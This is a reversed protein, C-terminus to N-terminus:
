IINFYGYPYTFYNPRPIRKESIHNSFKFQQDKISTGQRRFQPVTIKCTNSLIASDIFKEFTEIDILSDNCASTLNFGKIKTITVIKGNAKHALAYTKPALAYFHTINEYVTKFDGLCDSVKLPNITGKPLLFAISDTDCYAILGNVKIISRIHEDLVQRALATIQGTLYCNINRNTPLSSENPKVHVLCFNGNICDVSLINLGYIKFLNNLEAQNTAILCKSRPKQAFKGYLSNALLKMLNKKAENPNIKEKSICFSPQLNYKTNFTECIKDKDENSNVSKFINTHLLKM